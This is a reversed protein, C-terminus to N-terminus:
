LTDRDDKGHEWRRTIRLLMTAAERSGPEVVVAIGDLQHVQYTPPHGPGVCYTQDPEAACRLVEGLTFGLEAARDAAHLRRTWGWLGELRWRLQRQWPEEPRRGAVPRRGPGAGGGGARDPRSGRGPGSAGPRGCGQGVADGTV